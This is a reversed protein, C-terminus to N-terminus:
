IWDLQSQVTCKPVEVRTIGVYKQYYQMPAGLLHSMFFACIINFMANEASMLVHLVNFSVHNSVHNGQSAICISCKRLNFTGNGAVLAGEFYILEELNLM